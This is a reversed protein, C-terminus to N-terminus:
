GLEAQVYTGRGGLSIENYPLKQILCLSIALGLFLFIRWLCAPQSRRKTKNLKKLSERWGFPHGM